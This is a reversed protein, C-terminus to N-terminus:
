SVYKSVDNAGHTFSATSATLVQLFSYMYETRNDYHKAHAHTMEIDGTLINKKKQLGVVDQEIGRFFFRKFQWFLMAPHFFGKGEPRPGIISFEPKPAVSPADSPTGSKLAESSTNQSEKVLEGENELDSPRNEQTAAREAQLQEMTKHGSYFDQVISYGEPPPPVEGRRLVLPGLFLHYWQLQWDEKLLRRYLWPLFFITVILAVAAGVGIIVGVTEADNLSIRSSGGKWVILVIISTLSHEHLEPHAIRSM